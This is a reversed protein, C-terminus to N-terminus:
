MNCLKHMLADWTKVGIIGDPTTIGADKGYQSAQFQKVKAEMYSDFIGNTPIGLINQVTETCKGQTGKKLRPFESFNVQKEEPEYKPRLIARIYRTNRTRRMVEGGNSDNGVATNGEITTYTGDSNKSEIFGIHDADDEGTDDWDFLILDGAQGKDKDVELGNSRGWNLVQCCGATKQGDYFLSSADCMRFIDWVFTVCWAYCTGYVPHGYYDTNFIVNNSDAPNEKTGIYYRAKDLISKVTKAM